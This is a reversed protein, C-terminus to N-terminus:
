GRPMPAALWGTSDSRILVERHMALASDVDVILQRSLALANVTGAMLERTESRSRFARDTSRAVAVREGSQWTAITEQSFPCQAM